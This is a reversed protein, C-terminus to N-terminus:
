SDVRIRKEIRNIIAGTDELPRKGYGKGRRFFPKGSKKNRAWGGLFTFEANRQYVGHRLQDILDRRVMDATADSGNDVLSRIWKKGNKAVCDDLFPRKPSNYTGVNMWFAISPMLDGPDRQFYGVRLTNNEVPDDEELFRIRVRDTM